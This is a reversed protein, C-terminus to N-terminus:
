LQGQFFVSIGLTPSEYVNVRDVLFDANNYYQLGIGWAKNLEYSLNLGYQTFATGDGRVFSVVGKPEGITNQVGLSLQFWIKQFFQYGFQANAVWQDNFKQGEFSTRKNFGASLNIYAPLPDLSGSIAIGSWFNWEGDGTPLNISGLGDENEAFRNPRAIPAEMAFSIAIPLVEQLFGYKADVRLDGIGWITETSSFGHARVFPWNAIISLRETIGYEAYFNLHHQAFDTTTLQEGELNHYRDSQFSSVSLQTFTEGKNRVWGSQATAEEAILM